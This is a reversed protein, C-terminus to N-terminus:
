ADGVDGLPVPCVSRAPGLASRDVDGAPSFYVCIIQSMLEKRVDGRANKKIRSCHNTPFLGLSAGSNLDLKALERVKEADQEDQTPQFLQDEESVTHRSVKRTPDFASRFLANLRAQQRLIQSAFKTSPM